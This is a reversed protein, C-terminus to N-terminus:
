NQALFKKTGLLLQETIRRGRKQHERDHRGGIVWEHIQEVAHDFTDNILFIYYKHTLAVEFEKEASELRRRKEESPMTGRSDFRRMWEEFSPPIVFFIKTDPKLAYITDVGDPTIDTIGIQNSQHAKDVERISIGSVQQNHILAAELFKGGELDKLVDAESRFWYERGNYEIPEGNKHRIKRTTDSVLYHYHGTKKLDTVITNRGSSSPGVLLVLDTANLIEKSRESPQYDKLVRQFEALHELKNIM